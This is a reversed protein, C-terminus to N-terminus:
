PKEGREREDLCKRGWLGPDFADPSRRPKRAPHSLLQKGRASSKGLGKSGRQRVKDNVAQPATLLFPYRGRSERSLRAVCKKKRNM